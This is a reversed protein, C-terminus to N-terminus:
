AARALLDATGGAPFPVVMTVPRNPWAQAFGTCPSLALAVAAFAIIRVGPM